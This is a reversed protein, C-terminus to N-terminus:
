RRYHRIKSPTQYPAQSLDCMLYEWWASKSDNEGWWSPPEHMEGYVDDTNQLIISKGYGDIEVLVNDVLVRKALRCLWNNFERLTTEFMRDRLAADVTILYTDQTRFGQDDDGLNSWHDFEDCGSSLNYGHAQTVYVNMNEESGTVLPLHALVTDLIYRKEPQTRGFPIVRITGTIHTWFSM